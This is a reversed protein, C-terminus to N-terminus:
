QKAAKQVLPIVLSIKDMNDVLSDKFYTLKIEVDQIFRQTDTSSGDFPDIGLRERKRQRPGSDKGRKAKKFLKLLKAYRKDYKRKKADDCHARCRGLIKRPDPPPSDSDDSDSSSGSDGPDGAGAVNGDRPPIGGGNGGTNGGRAGRPAEDGDFAEKEDDESRRDSQPFSISSPPPPPQTALKKPQLFQNKFDWCDKLDTHIKLDCYTCRSNKLKPSSSKPPAFCIPERDEKFCPARHRMVMDSGGGEVRCGDSCYATASQASQGPFGGWGPKRKAPAAPVTQPVPVTPNHPTAPIPTAAAVAFPRELQVQIAPTAPEVAPHAPPNTQQAPTTPLSSPPVSPASPKGSSPEKEKAKGSKKNKDVGRPNGAPSASRSHIMVAAAVGEAFRSLRTQASHAAVLQENQQRITEQQQMNTKALETLYPQWEAQVMYAAIERAYEIPPAQVLPLAPAAQMVVDSHSDIKYGHQVAHELAAVRGRLLTCSRAFHKFAKQQELM